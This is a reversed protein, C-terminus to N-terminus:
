ELGIQSAAVEVAQAPDVVTTVAPRLAFSRLHPRSIRDGSASGGFIPRLCCPEDCVPQLSSFRRRPSVSPMTALVRLAVPSVRRAGDRFRRFSPLGYLRCCRSTPRRRSPTPPARVLSSAPYSGHLLP